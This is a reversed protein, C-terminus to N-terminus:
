SKKVKKGREMSVMGSRAMELITYSQMIAIFDDIKESPGTVEVVMSDIGVDLV